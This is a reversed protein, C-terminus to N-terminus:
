TVRSAFPRDADELGACALLGDEVRYRDIESDTAAPRAKGPLLWTVAAAFIAQQGVGLVVLAFEGLGADLRPLVFGM